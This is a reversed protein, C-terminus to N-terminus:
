GGQPRGSCALDAAAGRVQREHRAARILRGGHGVILDDLDAGKELQARFAVTRARLEDDSFTRQRPDTNPLGARETANVKIWDVGHRLNAQM